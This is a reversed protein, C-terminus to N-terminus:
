AGGAKLAADDYEALRALVQDAAKAGCDSNAWARVADILKDTASRQEHAEVVANWLALSQVFYGHHEGFKGGINVETGGGMCGRISGIKKDGESVEIDMDAVTM